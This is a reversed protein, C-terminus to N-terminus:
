LQLILMKCYHIRYSYVGKLTEKRRLNIRLSMLEMTCYVLMLTRFYFEIDHEIFIISVLKVVNFLTADNFLGLRRIESPSLKMLNCQM